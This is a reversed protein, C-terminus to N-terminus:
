CHVAFLSSFSLLLFRVFMCVTYRDAYFLRWVSFRLMLFSRAPGLPFLFFFFVICLSKEVLVLGLAATASGCKSVQNVTKNLALCIFLIILLRWLHSSVFTAIFMRWSLASNGKPFYQSHITDTLLPLSWFSLFPPLIESVLAIGPTECLTIIAEGCIGSVWYTLFANLHIIISSGKLGGWLLLAM